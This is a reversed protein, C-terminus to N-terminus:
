IKIFRCLYSDKNITLIKLFYLGNQLASVDISEINKNLSITSLLRGQYNYIEAITNDGSINEINLIRDTPNPYVSLENGTNYESIGIGSITYCASTDTCGNESVIVAYNGNTFPSFFMYTEEEVPLFGNDCNLWQYIASHQQSFLSHNVQDVNTNVYYELAGADIIGCRARGAQDTLPAGTSIGIGAAPSGPLLNHTLTIGGNNALTDLLPDIENTDNAATLFFSMSTDSSINGGKSSCTAPGSRQFNVGQNNSFICNQTIFYAPFMDPSLRLPENNGTYTCNIMSLTDKMYSIGGFPADAINNSFTCNEIIAKKQMLNMIATSGNATNNIFTSNKIIISLGNSFFAGFGGNLCHNGDFTCHNIFVNAPTGNCSLASGMADSACHVFFCSDAIFIGGSVGYYVAGGQRSNHVYTSDNLFCVSKLTLTGNNKHRIAGGDEGYPPVHVVGEALKLGVILINGGGIDFIRSMGGSSITLLNYGPGMIFLSKSFTIQGSTLTITSGHLSSHFNITDGSAALSIMERLSGAGSDNTNIVTWVSAISRTCFAM